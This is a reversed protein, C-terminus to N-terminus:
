FVRAVVPPAARANLGKNRPACAALRNKEAAQRFTDEPFPEDALQRRICALLRREGSFGRMLNAADVNIHALIDITPRTTLKSACGAGAWVPRLESGSTSNEWSLWRSGFESPSFASPMLGVCHFCPSVSCKM